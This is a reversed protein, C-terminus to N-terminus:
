DDGDIVLRRKVARGGGVQGGSDGSDSSLVARKAGGAAVTRVQAAATAGRGDSCLRWGPV